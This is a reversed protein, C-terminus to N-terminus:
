NKNIRKEINEIKMKLLAPHAYDMELDKFAQYAKKLMGKDEFCFTVARVPRLFHEFPFKFKIFHSLFIRVSPASESTCSEGNEQETRGGDTVSRALITHAM